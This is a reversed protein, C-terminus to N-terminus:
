PSKMHAGLCYPTSSLTDELKLMIHHHTCTRLPPWLCPKHEFCLSFFAPSSIPQLPSLSRVQSRSLLVDSKFIGTTRLPSFAPAKSVKLVSTM